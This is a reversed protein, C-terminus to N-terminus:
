LETREVVSSAAVAAFQEVSSSHQRALEAQVQNFSRDYLEFKGTIFRGETPREGALGELYTAMELERAEHHEIITKVKNMDAAIAAVKEDFVFGSVEAILETMAPGRAGALIQETATEMRVARQTLEGRLEAHEKFGRLNVSAQEDLRQEHRALLAAQAEVTEHLREIGGKLVLMHEADAALQEVLKNLNAIDSVSPDLPIHRHQAETANLWMPRRSPSRGVRAGPMSSARRPSPLRVKPAKGLLQLRVTSPPRSSRQRKAAAETKNPSSSLDFFDADEIAAAAPAMAPSAASSAATANGAQQLETQMRNSGTSGLESSGRTLRPPYVPQAVMPIESHERDDNPIGGGLDSCTLSVDRTSSM